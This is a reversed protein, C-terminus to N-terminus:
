VSPRESPFTVQYTRPEVSNLILTTINKLRDTRTKPGDCSVSVRLKINKEGHTM